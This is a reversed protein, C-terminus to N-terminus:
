RWRTRSTGCRSRATAAGGGSTPAGAAHGRRGPGVFVAEAVFDLGGEAGEAGEAGKASRPVNADTVVRPVYVIEEGSARGPSPPPAVSADRSAPPSRPTATTTVAGDPDERRDVGGANSVDVGADRLARAAAILQAVGGDVLILDPAGGRDITTPDSRPRANQRAVAREAAACRRLM